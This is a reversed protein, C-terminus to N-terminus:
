ALLLAFCCPALVAPGRAQHSQGVLDYRGPHWREPVHQTCVFASLGLCAVVGALAEGAPGINGGALERAAQWALPATYGARRTCM